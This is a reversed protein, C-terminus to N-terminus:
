ALAVKFVHILMSKHSTAGTLSTNVVLCPFIKVKCLYITSKRSFTEVHYSFSTVLGIIQICYMVSTHLQIGEWAGTKTSSASSRYASIISVPIAINVHSARNNCCIYACTTNLGLLSAVPEVHNASLRLLQVIIWYCHKSEEMKEVTM